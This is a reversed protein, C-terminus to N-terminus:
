AVQHGLSCAHSIADPKAAIVQAPTAPYVAAHAWVLLHQRHAEAAIRAVLDGPLNAYIKIATASTGRALTVAERLDTRADIAQMWPTHGPPHGYSVAITRPDAFFSPGAMLAAYFIDPAPIEGKRSARTLE